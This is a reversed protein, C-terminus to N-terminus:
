HHGCPSRKIFYLPPRESLLRGRGLQPSLPGFTVNISKNWLESLQLFRDDMALLWPTTM